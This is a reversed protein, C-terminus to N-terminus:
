SYSFISTPFNFVETRTTLNFYLAVSNVLIHAKTNNLNVSWYTKLSKGDSLFLEFPFM